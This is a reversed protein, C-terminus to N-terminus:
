TRENTEFYILASQLYMPHMFSFYPHSLLFFYHFLSFFPPQPYGQNPCISPAFVCAAGCAKVSCHFEFAKDHAHIVAFALAEREDERFYLRACEAARAEIAEAAEMALAQTFSLPLTFPASTGMDALHVSSRPRVIYGARSARDGLDGGENLGLSQVLRTKVTNAKAVSLRDPHLRLSSAAFAHLLLKSIRALEELDCHDCTWKEQSAFTDVAFLDYIM